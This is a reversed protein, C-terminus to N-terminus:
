QSYPFLQSARHNPLASLIKPACYTRVSRSKVANLLTPISVTSIALFIFSVLYQKKFELFNYCTIKQIKCVLVDTKVIHKLYLNSHFYNGM